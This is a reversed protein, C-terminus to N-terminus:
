RGDCFSGSADEVPLVGSRTRRSSGSTLPCFFIPDDHFLIFSGAAGFHLCLRQSGEGSWGPRSRM